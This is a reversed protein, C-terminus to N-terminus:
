VRKAASTNRDDCSPCCSWRVCDKPCGPGTSHSAYARRLRLGGPRLEGHCGWRCWHCDCHEQNAGDGLDLRLHLRPNRALLDQVAPGHLWAHPCGQLPTMELTALSPASGPNVARMFNDALRADPSVHTVSKVCSLTMSRLSPFRHLTAAMAVLSDSACKLTLSELAPASPSAALALLLDTPTPSPKLSTLKVSRLQSSQRVFDLARPPFPYDDFAILRLTHLNSLAQSYKLDDNLHCTLSRLKPAQMSSLSPLRGGTVLCVTELTAAHTNLLVQIFLDVSAGYTLETLSSKVAKQPLSISSLPYSGIRLELKRLGSFGYIMNWFSPPFQADHMSFVTLDKLGGMSYVKQVIDTVLAVSDQASIFLDVKAVVCAMSSVVSAVSNMFSPGEVDLLSMSGLCPARRLAALLVGGDSLCVSRWLDPHLCLDRLRRCVLRCSFLERPTLYALVALM